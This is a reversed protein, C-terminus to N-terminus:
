QILRREALIAMRRAVTLYFKFIRHIPFFLYFSSLNGQYLARIKERAAERTLTGHRRYLKWYNYAPIFRMYAKELSTLRVHRDGAFDRFLMAEEEIHVASEINGATAQQEHVRFSCLPEHFYAFDGKGLLHLWMELDVIQRYREDFGRVGQVRRFLVASPEGILNRQGILCDRIVTAGPLVVDKTGYKAVVKVIHSKRDIVSRASAVLSLSRDADMAAVMTRLAGASAFRDDGFLYKIYEGQASFLCKNWNKVMGVNQENISCRIRRDRSAYLRIIDPSDDTSRDDIAIVEFDSFTQELISDFAEALYRSSNFVPVCISVRPAM